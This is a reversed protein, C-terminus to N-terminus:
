RFSEHKCWLGIWFPFPRLISFYSSDSEGFDHWSKLFRPANKHGSIVSSEALLIMDHSCFDRCSKVADPGSFWNKLFQSKWWKARLIWVTLRNEIGNQGVREQCKARDYDILFNLNWSDWFLKGSGWMFVWNEFGLKELWWFQYSVWGIIM